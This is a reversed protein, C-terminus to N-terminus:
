LTILKNINPSTPIDESPRQLACNRVEMKAQYSCMYVEAMAMAVENDIRAQELRLEEKPDVQPEAAERGPKHAPKTAPTARVQPEVVAIAPAEPQDAIIAITDAPLKEASEAVAAEPEPSHLLAVAMAAVTAAVAAAARWLWARRGRPRMLRPRLQRWGERADLAPMPALADALKVSAEYIERLEPDSVIAEMEEATLSSPSEVMKGILAEIEQDTM